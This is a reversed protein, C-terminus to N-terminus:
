LPWAFPYQSEKITGERKADNIIARIHRLTIAITTQSKGEQRLFDVFRKLWSVSVEGFRVPHPSFRLVAKLANEYIM